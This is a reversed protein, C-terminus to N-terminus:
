RFVAIRGAIAGYVDSKLSNTHILDVKRQVAWRAVALVYSGWVPLPESCDSRPAPRLRIKKSGAFPNPFLCSM